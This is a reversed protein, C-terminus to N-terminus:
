IEPNRVRAKRHLCFYRQLMMFCAAKNSHLLPAEALSNESAKLAKDYAELAKQYEKRGFLKNGEEKLKQVEVSAAQPQIYHLRCPLLGSLLVKTVDLEQWEAPTLKM